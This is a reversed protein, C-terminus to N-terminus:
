PRSIAAREFDSPQVAPILRRAAIDNHLASKLEALSGFKKEDRIRTEISLTLTMGYIDGSFDLLHAEIRRKKGDSVTPNVGINVVAAKQTGDALTATAAYVGGAPILLKADVGLNATPVDITRGIHSGEVVIGTLSFPRGLIRNARAVDGAVLAKRIESSSCGEVHPAIHVAVGLEEGLQKYDDSSMDRCDCGFSNDYGLVLAEMGCEPVLQELWERSTKGRVTQTFAVRKVGVGASRILADRLDPPAILGPTRGPAVVELPHRDFTVVLPNLGLEAGWRKLCELVAQHGRHVGDFTGITM